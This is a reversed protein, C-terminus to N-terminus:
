RKGHSAAQSEQNVSTGQERTGITQEANQKKVYADFSEAMSRILGELQDIRVQKRVCEACKEPM